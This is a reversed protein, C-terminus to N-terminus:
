VEWQGPEQFHGQLGVSHCDEVRVSSVQDSAM